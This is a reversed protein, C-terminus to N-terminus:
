RTKHKGKWNQWNKELKRLYENKFKRNNWKYLMKVMYKGPLEGRRFNKEEALEIKEQKRIETSEEFEEVLEKINGLNEEKEWSDNVAIFGKWRVLYKIIRREKKKNM